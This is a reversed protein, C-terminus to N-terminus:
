KIKVYIKLLWQAPVAVVTAFEPLATNATIKSYYM